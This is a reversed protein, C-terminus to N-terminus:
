KYETGFEDFVNASLSSALETILIRIEDKEDLFSEDVKISVRGSPKWFLRKVWENSEPDFLETDGGMNPLVIIEGTSPNKAETSQTTIRLNDKSEVVSEWEPITIESDEREIYITFTYSNKEPQKEEAQQSCGFGLATCIAIIIKKM